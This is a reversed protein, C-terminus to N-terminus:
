HKRSMSNSTVPFSHPKNEFLRGEGKSTSTSYIRFPNGLEVFVEFEQLLYLGLASPLKMTCLSWLISQLLYLLEIVTWSLDQLRWSVSAGMNWSLLCMFTTLNDARRVPRRSKEVIIRPVQIVISWSSTVQKIIESNVAWYTEFTLVNMKLLKRSITSKDWTNYQEPEIHTPTVAHNPQPPTTDKHLSFCHKLRCLSVVGHTWLRVVQWGSNVVKRCGRCM